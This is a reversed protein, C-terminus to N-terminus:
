QRAMALLPWMKGECMIENGVGGEGKDGIRIGMGDFHFCYRHKLPLPIKIEFVGGWTHNLNDILFLIM